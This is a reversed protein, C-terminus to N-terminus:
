LDRPCKAGTLKSLWGKFPVTAVAWKGDRGRLMEARGRWAEEM